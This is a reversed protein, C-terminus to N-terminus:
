RRTAAEAAAIRTKARVALRGASRPGASLGGGVAATGDGAAMATQAVLFGLLLAPLTFRM